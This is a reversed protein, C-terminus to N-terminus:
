FSDVIESITALIIVIGIWGIILGIAAFQCARIM